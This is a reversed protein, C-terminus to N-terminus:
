QSEKEILRSLEEVDPVDKPRLPKIENKLQILLEKSAVLVKADGINLWKAGKSLREFSLLEKRPLWRIFSIRTAKLYNEM